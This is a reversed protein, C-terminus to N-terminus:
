GRIRRRADPSLCEATDSSSLLRSRLGSDPCSWRVQMQGTGVHGPTLCRAKARLSMRARPRPGAPRGLAIRAGRARARDAGLKGRRRQCAGARPEDGRRDRVRGRPDVRARRGRARAPHPRPRRRVGRAGRGAPAARRHPPRQQGALRTGEPPAEGRRYKGTLLGSELPFYPIYGIGLELCVPVVEADDDRRMLSYYNQVAVIEAVEAAQRIQSADVNSLGLWRVKGEDVLERMAGVTEAIPTVGDPRHYYYLDVSDTGLRELSADIARRLYDRSGRPGEGNLGQMDNGFKTALVVRDRRGALAEGLYRESDGLEGYIDATDLFTIGADLAADVVARTAASDLRWGFNNCGLGVRSVELDSGGLRSTVM